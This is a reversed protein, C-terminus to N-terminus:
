AFALMPRQKQQRRKLPYMRQRLSTRFSAGGERLSGSGQWYFLVYKRWQWAKQGNVTSEVCEAARPRCRLGEPWSLRDLTVAPGGAVLCVQAAM